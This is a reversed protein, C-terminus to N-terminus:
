RVQSSPQYQNLPALRPAAPASANLTADPMLTVEATEGFKVEISQRREGHADKVVVERTGIPIQFAALPAAGIRQGEVWVEAGPATTVHVLGTPLTITYPTVQGSHITVSASSKYAFRTSVFEIQHAGAPLLIQGDETTGIRKGDAFLDMPVRSFAIIFGPGTVEKPEAAPAAAPPKSTNIVDSVPVAREAAAIAKHTLVPAVVAAKKAANGATDVLATSEHHVLATSQQVLATSEKKASSFARPLWMVGAGIVVIVAAAIGVLEWRVNEFSGHSSASDDSVGAFLAPEEIPADVATEDVAAAAAAASQRAAEKRLRKIEAELRQNAEAQIRKTEAALAAEAAARATEVAEFRIKETELTAQQHAHRVQENEGMVSALQAELRAETEAQARAVQSQLREENETRAKAVAAKVQADAEARIRAIEEDAERARAAAEQAARKAEEIAAAKVAEAEKKAAARAVEAEKMAAARAAEAEKMVAAKAAEAEKMAAARAAEAEKKATERAAETEKKAAARATEAEKMAAARAADAEKLAAAKAAEAEQRIHALREEREHEAHSQTSALKEALAREAEERVRAIEAALQQEAQRRVEQEVRAREAATHEAAESQLREIERARRETAEQEVRALERAQQAAAEARVRDLEANLRYEVEAEILSVEAARLDDSESEAPAASAPEPATAAATTKGNKGRVKVADVAVFSVKLQGEFKALEPTSGNKKGALPPVELSQVHTASPTSKLHATIKARQEQSVSRGFLVLDPVRQNIAVVAAYASTVMTFEAGFKTRILAALPEAQASDPEIALVVNM